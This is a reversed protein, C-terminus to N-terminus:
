WFALEAAASVRKSAEHTNEEKFFDFLTPDCAWDAESDIPVHLRASLKKQWTKASTNSHAKGELILLRRAILDKVKEEATWAAEDAGWQLWRMMDPWRLTLAIWRAYQDLDPSQWAEEESRRANRLALYLRALNAMRKVERPNGSTYKTVRRIIEGVDRSETFDKSALNLAANSPKDDQLGKKPEPKIGENGAPELTPPENPSPKPTAAKSLITPQVIPSAGGLWEVYKEIKAASSPPITFPLQVFKDMFRWGLPVTREYRPLQKRVNEHATELAAAVIQPDMGIVFMCRIDSALLM